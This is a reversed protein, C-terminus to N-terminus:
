HNLFKFLFLTLITFIFLDTTLNNAASTFADTGFLDLYALLFNNWDSGGLIHFTRTVHTDESLTTNIISLQALIKIPLSITPLHHNHIFGARICLSCVGCHQVLGTCFHPCDISNNLNQHETLKWPM